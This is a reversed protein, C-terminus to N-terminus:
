LKSKHSIKDNREYSGELLEKCLEKCFNWNEEGLRQAKAKM